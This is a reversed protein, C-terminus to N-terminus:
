DTYSIKVPLETQVKSKNETVGDYAVLVVYGTSENGTLASPNTIPLSSIGYGAMVAGSRGVTVREGSSSAVQLEVVLKHSDNTPNIFNLKCVRAARSIEVNESLSFSYANGKSPQGSNDNDNKKQGPDVEIKAYDQGSNLTAVITFYGLIGILIAIMAILLIYLFPPIIIQRQLVSYCRDIIGENNVVIGAANYREDKCKLRVVSGCCVIRGMNLGCIGALNKDSQVRGDFIINAIVGKMYGFLGVYVAKVDKITGNWILHNRGDFVGRFACDRHIGVIPINKGKFDLDNDLYVLADMFSANKSNVADAFAKYDEVTKIHIEKRDKNNLGIHWNNDQFKVITNDGAYEWCKSVDFGLRKIDSTKQILYDCNVKGDIDYIEKCSSQETLVSTTINGTNTYVLSKKSKESKNWISYCDTITGSNTAVIAAITAM